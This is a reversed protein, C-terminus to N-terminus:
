WKGRSTLKGGQPDWGTCSAVLVYLIPCGPLLRTNVFMLGKATSIGCSSWEMRTKTGTTRVLVAPQSLGATPAKACLILSLPSPLFFFPTPPLSLKPGKLIDTSFSDYPGACPLDVPSVCRTPFPFFPFSFSQSFLLFCKKNQPAFFYM